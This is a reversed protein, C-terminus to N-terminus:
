APLGMARYLRPDSLGDVVLSASSFDQGRSHTGPVAVTFAGAEAAARCGVESDELVLTERAPLGFRRAATRYIEPHPKGRAVDEATLIFRFRAQLEFRSLVAATLERGSSTAIAKPIGAAELAALLELLGPMPALHEDLLDLFIRDSEPALQDWTDDLHHWRIMLEFAPQPPLGMMAHGLEGTFTRGRRRLLESGALTYLEETNLMLGDMDFIVARPAPM